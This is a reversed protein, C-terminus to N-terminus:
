EDFRIHTGINFGIKSSGGANLMANAAAVLKDRGRSKKVRVTKSLKQERDIGIKEWYARESDGTLIQCRNPACQKIITPASRPNDVRVYASTQSERLDVYRVCTYQRMEAKFDAVNVCPVDFNVRVIIGAEFEFLPKKNIRSANPANANNTSDVTNESGDGDGSSGCPPPPVSAQDVHDGESVDCENVDALEVAESNAGYFNMNRANSRIVKASTVPSSQPQVALAQKSRIVVPRPLAVSSRSNSSQRHQRQILERKVQAYHQRQLMLYKNRLRKWDTKTTVRLDALTHPKDELLLSGNPVIHGSPKEKRRRRKRRKTGDKSDDLEENNPASTDDENDDMREGDITENEHLSENGDQPKAAEQKSDDDNVKARKPAKSINSHVSEGDSVDAAQDEDGKVSDDCKRKRDVRSSSQEDVSGAAVNPESQTEVKADDPAVEDTSPGNKEEQELQEQEKVYSKVSALQEPQSNCVDIIGDLKQFVALCRDVSQRDEFEIFAFEKINGSRKYKPLSVYAM